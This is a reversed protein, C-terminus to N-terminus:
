PKVFEFFSVGPVKEKSRGKLYDRFPIELVQKKYAAHRMMPLEGPTLVMFGTHTADLKEMPAVLGIGLVKMPGEYVKGAWELAKDYPLYRLEVVPDAAEKGDVLYKLKKKKFFENKGITKAVVTDGPMDVMRVFKKDSAWDALLYHKRHSYDIVGDKYRIKQLVEFIEKESKALTLALAHELYTVCDVSDLYVLPGQEISDLYSEGMPGLKYPVGMLKRSFYELRADMGRINEAEMWMERMKLLSNYDDNVAYVVRTWLTDLVDKLTADKNKGTENLYMALTLTDGDMTYVYGVLGHAEGIFGTKFRTLWHHKLNVMRKSGTGIRPSAFSNIYFDKRPHRAMKALLETEVSPKLKNKPSLGCGDWVEYDDFDMGMEALFKRELAKGNEVNGKGLILGGMNRFLTEAHYNQSRQNIEDMISLLPAATYVFSKIEIGQPVLPDSVFAIGKEKLVAMFAARFYGVPNRIPLVLSASDVEMGITGGLRIVSKASDLAWTWKKKKGPVTKLDNVVTVYGVDPLISVIASDGEKEGPKFRVMTCNDNFDLPAIEAGYWADYFNKRWHEARWPGDYFGTDLDISGRITDVGLAKISDAMSNIMYFPDAYYRGSFNPDGAGHIQVSGFFNKQRVSGVLSIKTEPAYDLPLFHLATATTLTKLTSAPTFKEDGRINALEKGQQVSRISVGLRSGPVVSDVYAQFFSLDLHAFLSSTAFLLLVISRFSKM